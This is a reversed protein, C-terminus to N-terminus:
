GWRKIGQGCSYDVLISAIMIPLYKVEGWAYFIMSAVMLVLNKFKRPVIYYILFTVPLFRFLFMISSFVM